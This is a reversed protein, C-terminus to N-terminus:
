SAKPEDGGSPRSGDSPAGGPLAELRPPRPRSARLALLVTMALLFVVITGAILTPSSRPPTHMVLAMALGVVAGGLAPVISPTWAWTLLYGLILCAPTALWIPGDLVSRGVMAGSVAALVPALRLATRRIAAIARSRPGNKWSDPQVQEALELMRSSWRAERLAARPGGDFWALVRSRALQVFEFTGPDVYRDLHALDEDLRARDAADEISGLNGYIRKIEQILAARRGPRARIASTIRQSAFAFVVLVPIQAYALVRYAVLAAPGPIRLLLLRAALAIAVFWTLLTALRIANAAWGASRMAHRIGFGTMFAAYVAFVLGLRLSARILLDVDVEPV